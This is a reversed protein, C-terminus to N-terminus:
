LCNMQKPHREIHNKKSNTISLAPLYHVGNAFSQFVSEISQGFRVLLPEGYDVTLNAPCDQLGVDANCVSVNTCCGARLMCAFLQVLAM